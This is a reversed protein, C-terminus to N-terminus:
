LELTIKRFHKREEDSPYPIEKGNRYAKKNDDGLNMAITYSRCNEAAGPMELIDSIIEKRDM